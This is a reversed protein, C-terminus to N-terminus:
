VQPVWHVQPRQVAEPRVWGWRLVLGVNQGRGGGGARVLELSVLSDPPNQQLDSVWCIWSGQHTPRRKQLGRVTDGRKKGEGM